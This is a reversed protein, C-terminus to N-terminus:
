MNKLDVKKVDKELTMRTRMSEAGSDLVSNEVAYPIVRCKDLYPSLYASGKVTGGTAVLILDVKRLFRDMLPQYLRMLRKQKVVDSHWYVVTKGKYGSLLFALDGLPFPMHFHVIDAKKALKRFQWLFSISIPMSALIGFSGARHVTVGNIKEVTGHGKRQCALVEVSIDTEKSLGEAIQQVVKEIGGIEPYYLKNVQLVRM